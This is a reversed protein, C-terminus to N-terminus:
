SCEVTPKMCTRQPGCLIRTRVPGTSMAVSLRMVPKANIFLLTRDLPPPTLVGAAGGGGGGGNRISLTLFQLM